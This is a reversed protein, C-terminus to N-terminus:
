CNKLDIELLFERYPPLFNPLERLIRYGARCYRPAGEETAVTVMRRLNNVRAFDKRAEFLAKGHGNGRHQTAVATFITYLTDACPDYRDIFPSVDAFTFIDPVHMRLSWTYGVVEQNNLSVFCSEPFTAIRCNMTSLSAPHEEVSSEIAQIATLDEVTTNRIIM